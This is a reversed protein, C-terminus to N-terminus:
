ASKTWRQETALVREGDAGAFRTLRPHCRYGRAHGLPVLEESIDASAQLLSLSDVLAEVVLVVAVGAVIDPIPDPQAKVM